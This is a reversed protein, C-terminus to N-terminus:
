EAQLVNLKTIFNGLEMYKNEDEGGVIKFKYNENKKEVKRGGQLHTIKQMIMELKMIILVM